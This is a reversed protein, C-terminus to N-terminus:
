YYFKRRLEKFTIALDVYKSATYPPIHIESVTMDRNNLDISKSKM